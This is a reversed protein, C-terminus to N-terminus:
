ESNVHLDKIWTRAVGAPVEAERELLRKENESADKDKVAFYNKRLLFYRLM